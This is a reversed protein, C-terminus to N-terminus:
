KKGGLLLIDDWILVPLHLVNQVWDRLKFLPLMHPATNLSIIELIVSIIM